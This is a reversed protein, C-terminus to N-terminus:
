PSPRSEERLFTAKWRWASGCTTLRWSVPLPAWPQLLAPLNRCTSPRSPHNLSARAAQMTPHCMRQLPSSCYVDLVAEQGDWEGTTGLSPCCVLRTIGDDLGDLKLTHRGDSTGRSWDHVARLEEEEDEHKQKQQGQQGVTESAAAGQQEAGGGAAAGAPLVPRLQLQRGQASWGLPLPLAEGPAARGLIERHKIVLDGEGGPAQGTLVQHGLAAAAGFAKGAATVAATAVPFPQRGTRRRRRVWRRRRVSDTLSPKHSGPPPPFHLRKFDATHPPHPPPQAPSCHLASSSLPLLWGASQWPVCQWQGLNMTRGPGYAWGNADTAPGHDTEWGSEWEWGAPPDVQLPCHLCYWM